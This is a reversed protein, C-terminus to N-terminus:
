RSFGRRPPPVHLAAEQARRVMSQEAQVRLPKEHLQALIMAEMEPRPTVVGYTKGMHALFPVLFLSQRPKDTITGRARRMTMIAGMWRGWAEHIADREGREDAMYLTKGVETCAIRYAIWGARGASPRPLGPLPRGFLYQPQDGTEDWARMVPACRECMEWPQAGRFLLTRTSHTGCNDCPGAKLNPM